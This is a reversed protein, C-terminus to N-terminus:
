DIDKFLILAKKGLFPNKWFQLAFPHRAFHWCHWLKLKLKTETENVFTDSYMEFCNGVSGLNFLLSLLVYLM